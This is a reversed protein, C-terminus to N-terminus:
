IVRGLNKSIFVLKDRRWSVGDSTNPLSALESPPSLPGLGLYYRLTSLLLILLLFGILRARLLAM